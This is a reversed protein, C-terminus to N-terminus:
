YHAVILGTKTYRFTKKEHRSINLATLRYVLTIYSSILYVIIDKQGHILLNDFYSLKFTKKENDM